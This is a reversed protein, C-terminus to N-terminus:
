CHLWACHACDAHKCHCGSLAVSFTLLILICSVACLPFCCKGISAMGAIVYRAPEIGSLIRQHTAVWGLLLEGAEHPVRSAGGIVKSAFSQAAASAAQQSIQEAWRKTDDSELTQLLVTQSRHLESKEPEDETTRGIEAQQKSEAALNPQGGLAAPTRGDAEATTQSSAEACPMTDRWEHIVTTPAPPRSSATAVARGGAQLQAAPLSLGSCRTSAVAQRQALTSTSHIQAGDRDLVCRGSRLERAFTVALACLVCCTFRM